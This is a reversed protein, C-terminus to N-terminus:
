QRYITAYGNRYDSNGYSGGYSRDSAYSYGSEGSAYRRSGGDYAHSDADAYRDGRYSGRGATRTAIASSSKSSISSNSNNSVSSRSTSSSSNNSAVQLGPLPRALSVFHPGYDIHIHSMDAYTMTGGTHNNAVLWRLIAVKRGGAEFDVANGSAHRSPRGTGAITAGPRCTSIVEVPGFIDEVRELLARIEPQLCKRPADAHDLKGHEVKARGFNPANQLEGYHRGDFGFYPSAQVSGISCVFACGIAATSLRKIM